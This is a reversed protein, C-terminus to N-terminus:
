VAIRRRAYAGVLAVFAALMALQGFSAVPAVVPAPPLSPGVDTSRVVALSEFGGVAMGNLTVNSVIGITLTGPIISYVRAAAEDTIGWVLGTRSDGDLGGDLASVGALTGLQTAAGTVGNVCYFKGQDSNGGIAYLGNTCNPSTAGRALGSIAAGSPGLVTTSANAPNVVYVVANIALVLRGTSDFTLGANTSGPPIGTLNGVATCAGTTTSCRVLQASQPNVGFLEGADNMALAEIKTFGTAGLETAVGTLLNISYLRRDPLDSRVSYGFPSASAVTAMLLAAAFAIGRRAHQIWNCPRVLVNTNKHVFCADAGRTARFEPELIMYGLRFHIVSERKEQTFKTM